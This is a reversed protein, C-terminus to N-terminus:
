SLSELLRVDEADFSTNGDHAMVWILGLDRDQYRLPVLLAEHIPPTVEALYPFHRAPFQYLQPTGRDLCAGSPSVERPMPRGGYGAADYAGALAVWRFIENGDDDHRLLSVGASGARCLDLAALALTDLVARTSGALSAALQRFAESESKYDAQRPVRQQLAETILVDELRGSCSMTM